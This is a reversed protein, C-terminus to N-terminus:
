RGLEELEELPKGFFRQSREHLISKKASWIGKSDGSWCHWLVSPLLFGTFFKNV